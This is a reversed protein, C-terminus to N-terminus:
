SMSGCITSHSCSGNLGSLSPKIECLIVLRNWKLSFGYSWLSRYLVAANNCTRVGRPTRSDKAWTYTSMGPAIFRDKFRGRTMPVMGRWGKPERVELTLLWHLMLQSPMPRGSLGSPLNSKVTVMGMLSETRWRIRVGPMSRGQLEELSHLFQWQLAAASCDPHALLERPAPPVEKQRCERTGNGAEVETSQPVHWPPFM